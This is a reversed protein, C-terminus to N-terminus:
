NPAPRTGNEQEALLRDQDEVWHMWQPRGDGVTDPLNFQDRLCMLDKILQNVMGAMLQEKGEVSASDHLAQLAARFHGHIECQASRMTAAAAEILEKADDDPSLNQIRVVEKDLQDIRKNKTELLKNTADREAKADAVEAQMAEKEKLHKAIIEEALEVFSEKDGSKAVAILEQKRDEPLRRFQRMERYGIGMRSMSDLAVEGLVKLNLIDEDIQQRSRGLMGCFEDWTGSLRQGDAGKKGKLSKYLKNEKVFALKSTSVTLSFKSFSDAMQAQGLLQNLLDRDESYGQEITAPQTTAQLDAAVAEENIDVEKRQFPANPKRGRKETM